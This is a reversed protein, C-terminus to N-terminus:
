RDKPVAPYLFDTLLRKLLLGSIMGPVGSRLFRSGDDTEM